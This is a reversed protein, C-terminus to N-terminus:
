ASHGSDRQRRRLAAMVLGVGAVVFLGPFWLSYAAAKSDKILVAESPEIPNVHATAESGAPFQAVLRDMKARSGSQPAVRRIRESRHSKGEFEYRYVVAPRFTVPSGPVSIVEDVRSEIIRCPVAAWLDMARAKLYVSWLYWCFVAGLGALVAGLAIAGLTAGPGPRVAAASM